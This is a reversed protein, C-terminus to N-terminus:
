WGRSYRQSGPREQLGGRGDAAETSARGPGEGIGRRYSVTDVRRHCRSRNADIAAEHQRGKTLHAFTTRPLISSTWQDHVLLSYMCFNAAMNAPRTIVAM